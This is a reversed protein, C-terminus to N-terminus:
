RQGFQKKLNNIKTEVSCDVEAIPTKAKFGGVISPDNEVSLNLNKVGLKTSLYKKISEVEAESKQYALSLNVPLIGTIKYHEKMVLDLILDVDKQKKNLFIFGALLNVAEEKQGDAILQAVKKSVLSLSLKM